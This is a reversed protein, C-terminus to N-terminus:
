TEKWDKCVSLDDMTVTSQPNSASDGSVIHSDHKLTQRSIWVQRIRRLLEQRFVQGSITYVFFNVCHNFSGMWVSLAWLLRTTAQKETPFYYAFSRSLNTAGYVQRPAKLIIFAVSVSLLMSITSRFNEQETKSSSGSLQKRLLRARVLAVVIIINCIFIILSPIYVIITPNVLQRFVDADPLELATCLHYSTIGFYKFVNTFVALLCVHIVALLVLSSKTTILMRAKLPALVALCRECSMCALIWDSSSEFFYYGYFWFKCLIDNSNIHPYPTISTIWLRGVLSVATLLMDALALMIMYLFVAQRRMKPSQLVVVIVLNLSIALVTNFGLGYQDIIRAAVAEPYLHRPPPGPYQTSM